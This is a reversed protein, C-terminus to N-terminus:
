GWEREVHAEEFRRLTEVGSTTEGVLLKDSLISSGRVLSDGLITMVDISVFWEWASGVM